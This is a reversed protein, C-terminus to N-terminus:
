WYRVGVIKGIRDGIIYQRESETRSREGNYRDPILGRGPHDQTNNFVSFATGIRFFVLM